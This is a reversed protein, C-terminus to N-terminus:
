DDRGRSWNRADERDANERPDKRISTRVSRAPLPVPRNTKTVDHLARVAQMMEYRATREAIGFEEAVDSYSAEQGWIRKFIAARRPPLLDLARHIADLESRAEAVRYPDPAEDAIHRFDDVDGASRRVAERRATSVALNLAMRYLYSQPVRPQDISAGDRHLRLYTEHLVEQAREVTGLRYALRRAFLAYNEILVAVLKDRVEASMDGAGPM